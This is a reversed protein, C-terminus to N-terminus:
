HEQDRLQRLLTDQVAIDQQLTNSIMDVGPLAGWEFLKNFAATMDCLPYGQERLYHILKVTEFGDFWRHFQAILQRNDKANKRITEWAQPFGRQELFDSLPAAITQAHKLFTSTTADCHHTSFELWTKLIQYIHPDDLLYENETGALFRRVRQGTGFPVRHSSRCSPYVTTATLSEVRGTKALQQLFYFDEGAQRQNMGGIATYADMRCAM